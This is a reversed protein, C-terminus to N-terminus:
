IPDDSMLLNRMPCLPKDSGLLVALLQQELNALMAADTSSALPMVALILPPVHPLPIQLVWLWVKTVLLERASNIQSELTSTDGLIDCAEIPKGANGVLFWKKISGNFYPRFAPLLKTDDVSLALPVNPPYGYDSLYKEAHELTHQSIGQVFGPSTSCKLLFSQETRGAFQMRFSHYAEPCICLLEHCWDDFAPPYKM